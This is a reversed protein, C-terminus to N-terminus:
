SPSLRFYGYVHVQEGTSTTLPKKVNGAVLIRDDNFRQRLWGHHRYLSYTIMYDASWGNNDLTYGASGLYPGIRHRLADWIFEANSALFREEVVRYGPQAAAAIDRLQGEVSTRQPEPIDTLPVASTYVPIKDLQPPRATRYQWYAYGGIIAVLSALLIVTKWLM